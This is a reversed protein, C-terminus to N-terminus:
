GNTIFIFSLPIQTYIHPVKYSSNNILIKIKIIILSILILILKSSSLSSSSSSSLISGLSHKRSSSLVITYTTSLPWTSTDIDITYCLLQYLHPLSSLSICLTSLHISLHIFSILWIYMYHVRLIIINFMTTMVVIMKIVIVVIIIVYKNQSTVDVKSGGAILDIERQNGM